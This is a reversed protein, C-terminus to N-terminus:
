LNEKNNNLKLRILHAYLEVEEVTFSFSIRNGKVRINGVTGGAENLISDYYSGFEKTSVEYHFVTKISM